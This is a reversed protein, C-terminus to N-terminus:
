DEYESIEDDDMVPDSLDKKDAKDGFVADGVAKAGAILALGATLGVAMMGIAVKGLSEVHDGSMKINNNKAM